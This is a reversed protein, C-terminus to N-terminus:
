SLTYGGFASTNRATVPEGLVLSLLYNNELRTSGSSLRQLQKARKRSVINELFQYSALLSVQKPLTDHDFAVFAVSFRRLQRSSHGHYGRDM